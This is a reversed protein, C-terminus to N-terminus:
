ILLHSKGELLASISKTEGNNNVCEFDLPTGFMLERPNLTNRLDLLQTKLDALKAPATTADESMSQKLSALNESLEVHSSQQPTLDDRSKFLKVLQEVEKEFADM